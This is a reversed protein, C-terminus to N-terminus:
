ESVVEAEVIPVFELGQPGREVRVADGSHIQGSLLRLALPDQLERQIARKLPRAGFEVDYGVEALYHTAEPTMELRIGRAQLLAAVHQLQIEVIQALDERTLQQFVVIEDIRNLFEPRFHGQLVRTVQDRSVEVPGGMWLESGLNSTMIIVTNRFDVTRGQGDTLRGDDLMQLLVNFVEPHAKEIEDFLVVSYPRRRVAETLQGGEEYGVYGPPAGLLRSVTHKEQYESMDIRVMAREDDFLFEALARALETKGVGTPGLFIFSGIPRNPDQLGSRARRVANAIARIAEDQGVVRRHLRAEMHLLKEMEGELMRSVPINTWHSIVEAIEEADVEEKLLAGEKQLQKIQAEAEQRQRELGPLEGYRLRAAKELDARREAQEVELQIQEMREKIAQLRAIADKETQWRTKLEASREALDALDRELAELRQRSSKDKEKQLAQREIELQMMQRDVEDLAQPKSDIETRLRAAAEDILDIAKDPLQRDTIYRNSLTAAAIVAADTIRVGHHVEYRQKLGRLISITEEVSPAEVLIPQFRRELAPDKEVYKRYEDITTAGVLHLEGRALMPKLMNGADMAGEAAGAGVVTHMEDVFLIIEGSSSTIEKLVAKLREEFEGRYKAGAVLAGMDLQILRKHKLGEPVDGNVIRQALGEVIATKGVGPDGILAPNNKTRRSLIQVTRRIEEDRGIVPDLKGQRAMATLDRGYKELAQYTEEPNQSTVRQNGRVDVMARLIADKTLGYQSLRKSEVSETLGLLIHEASVYEDQMGRAYREAANLVDNAPRSIGVQTNGGYVKPRSELDRRVDELLGATSGSVKTVIAPAVGGEQQLLALLLHAPEIAQHNMDQAIQQSQALAEQAKQTFRELNM